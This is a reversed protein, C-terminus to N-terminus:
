GRGGGQTPGMGQKIGLGSRPRRVEPAAAGRPRPPQRLGVEPEELHVELLPRLAGKQGWGGGRAQLAAGEERDPLPLPDKKGRESLGMTGSNSVGDAEEAEM